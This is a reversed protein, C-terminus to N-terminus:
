FFFFFQKVLSVNSGNHLVSIFLGFIVYIVFLLMLMVGDCYLVYKIITVLPNILGLWANACTWPCCHMLYCTTVRTFAILSLKCLRQLKHWERSEKCQNSQKQGHTRCLLCVCVTIYWTLPTILGRYSFLSCCLPSCVFPCLVHTFLYVKDACVAVVVAVCDWMQSSFVALANM